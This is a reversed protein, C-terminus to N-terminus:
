QLLWTDVTTTSSGEGRLEMGTLVAWTSQGCPIFTTPAPPETVRLWFDSVWDSAWTFRTPKRGVSSRVPTVARAVSGPPM